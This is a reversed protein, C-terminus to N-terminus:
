TNKHSDMFMVAEAYSYLAHRELSQQGLLVAIMRAVVVVRTIPLIRRRILACNGGSGFPM